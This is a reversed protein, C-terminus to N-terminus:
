RQFFSRRTKPNLVTAMELMEKTEPIKQYLTYRTVSFCSQGRGCNCFYNVFTCAAGHKAQSWRYASRLAMSRRDRMLAYVIIYFHHQAILVGHNRHNNNSSVM